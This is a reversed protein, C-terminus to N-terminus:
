PLRLRYFKQRSLNAEADTFIISGLQNTVSALESWSALDASAVVAYIGPPGTLTFEFEGAV